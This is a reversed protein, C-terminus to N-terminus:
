LLVKHSANVRGQKDIETVKVKLTDGMNLVDEVKNIRENSIQSIHVLADKGPFLEVFAGFKEIRKVKADYVQGVEAERVISEIWARAQNIMDQETSGIFVTGDQEIDLKVGTADIIENIQKGGPGIVDRIKEPKIQMIEVKPAYASLEKRPQDITQMMHELIALRGKCAQELAEEIVEKTLGDIKIDMQIATIGETTGAVKFDMDGLADEMGQIDTLITYSEERTVLGMAIGAVPAKIPVGADMLALTSGCISAQSSSGNSELVESVIRVTYPFTKEDPIIYRLAREGLAGHGIERRGPARVPGTEGVSFNPFNYHHMFRKHEEEGLGDIIQYESISGLTLVSLAQTQGRTFLGSGHARPLLGVESSLPRIEDPKRGDPRIKEDAILRRVEDKILTNIITGVEKLLAENEPDEENEFNALIREKIADLNADREQKDFTQIAGNLNEDKTMQTVSDILTQNKEEPIFERKEPQLHAIIEEQFACLRKIEEHGFLIAELMEAETIESAGAEVMNVADKHGAVELDLRSKERQELNPNIVYEGDVYGVNVGAIPGQFPIDSVSLAMSSGIMAAMEPSCNPDASLVTNIIQVDHRYGDPFLPRIPRDILRATLTAEDGPRGERKKFGGPIKGAAYMKEEYNVTLPFFDGDRPENSATATSLVVTDGYRVLVAGNAQKALQGTEITLPQNAWETKFVKKEQSM